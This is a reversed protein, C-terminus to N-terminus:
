FNFNVGLSYASVNPYKIGNNTDLEPDWLKFKSWTFVNSGMLYFRGGNIFTRKSWAKPFYYSVTFQKLRLFSVDRQWWTSTQFNNENSKDQGWALRPYFVNDNTPNNEDWRDEINAFLTGGGTSSTLPYIGTGSLARDAGATGQFLIGVGLNKYRIDGGFGFYYKPIDGRGIATMDHEDIHYDGNLDKYKIDGAKTLEGPYTEGFQSIGRETIEDDSAYLGEAIYGMRVLVNQGVSNRWPEDAYISKGDEIVVDENMTFNGRVSINLDKGFQHTYDFSAELGKNEVIGVNAAPTVAFGAYLPLNDRKVYIKDRYEKFLDFVFTLDNKLFNIEIGLDQKQITSWRAQYGYKNIAIASGGPYFSYGNKDKGTIETEFGFRTGDFSDNGVIGNSYRFKLYSIVPSVSEWFSENSPVWGVAVAPFFGFRHGKAYNESGTYGLNGELFYRDNYSYTIRSSLSMQKYPLLKYLNTQNPDKYDRMNFLVLGSVQHLRNFLHAYNLAGEAYFTRYSDRSSSVDIAPSGPVVEFLIIDGNEDFVADTWVDGNKEAVPKWRSDNQKYNLTQNDRVDFAILAHAKLGKSWDWFDLDQSLKLNSNIQTRYENKYGRRTLLGYPNDFEGQTWSYGVEKGGPYEKPYLVPNTRMAHEFIDDMKQSPYNGGSFWGNVGVDLNTKSTAKLNINTLFNYRNYTIETNYESRPDTKTLGKEDYYSLSVYYSANPAGGRINMNARRNYGMDNYLENMWDVNPYLYPNVTRDGTNPLLGNAMKTNLIYQDSYYPNGTSHIYAENVADMYQYGDVLNPVKTLTTVGEYYDFTFKPASVVGPKTTMIIVGNGGRVGYVATSSADKLVTISEIDEPDLQKFDREIGDVLILPGQNRNTVTSIGRIWIDADDHGPLGTRQVAVLGSVRGALVASMNAAPTKIHEMKVTSQAGVVSVKRQTGYGVVQLEDLMQVNEKLVFDVVSRSVKQEQSEYGIYTAILVPNSTTVALNYTGNVDTVTGNATGKELISVGILFEGDVDMVRGTVQVPAAQAWLSCAFLFFFLIGITNLKQLIM